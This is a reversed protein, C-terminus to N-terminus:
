SGAAANDLLSQLTTLMQPRPERLLWDVQLNLGSLSRCRWEGTVFTEESKWSLPVPIKRKLAKQRAATTSVASRKGFLM